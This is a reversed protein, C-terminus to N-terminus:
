PCPRDTRLNENQTKNKSITRWRANTADSTKRYAENAERTNHGGDETPIYVVNEPLTAVYAAEEDTLTRM